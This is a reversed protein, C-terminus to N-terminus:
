IGERESERIHKYTYVEVVGSYRICAHVSYVTHIYYPQTLIYICPDNAMFGGGWSTRAREREKRYM